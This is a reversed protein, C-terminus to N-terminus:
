NLEKPQIPTKRSLDFYWHSAQFSQKGPVDVKIITGLVNTNDKLYDYVVMQLQESSYPKNKKTGDINKCFSMLLLLFICKLSLVVKM